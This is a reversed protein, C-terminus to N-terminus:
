GHTRNLLAWAFYVLVATLVILVGTLWVLARSWRDSSEKFELLSRRLRSMMEAQMSVAHEGMPGGHLTKVIDADPADAYMSPKELLKDRPM